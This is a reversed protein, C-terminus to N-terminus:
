RHARLDALAEAADITQGSKMQEISKQTNKYSNTIRTQLSLKESHWDFSKM